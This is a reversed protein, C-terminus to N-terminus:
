KGRLKTSKYIILILSIVAFLGSFFFTLSERDFGYGPNFGNSGGGASLILVAVIPLYWLAFKRWALYVAEKLFYLPPLFFLLVVSFFTLMQYKDPFFVAGLCLWFHRGEFYQTCEDSGFLFKILGSAILLVFCALVILFFIKIQKKYNM